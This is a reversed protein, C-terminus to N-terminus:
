GRGLSGSVLQLCKCQCTALCSTVALLLLTWTDVFSLMDVVLCASEKHRLAGPDGASTDGPPRLCATTALVELKASVEQRRPALIIFGPDARNIRGLNRRGSPAELLAEVLPLAPAPPGPLWLQSSVQPPRRSSSHLPPPVHGRPQSEFLEMKKSSTSVKSAKLPFSQSAAQMGGGEWGGGRGPRGGRGKWTQFYKHVRRLARSVSVPLTQLERPCGPLQLLSPLGSILAPATWGQEGQARRAVPLTSPGPPLPGSRTRCRPASRLGGKRGGGWIEGGGRKEGVRPRTHAWEKLLLGGRKQSRPLIIPTGNTPPHVQLGSSGWQQFSLSARQHCRAERVPSSPSALSWSRGTM